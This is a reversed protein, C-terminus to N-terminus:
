EGRIYYFSSTELSRQVEKERLFLTYHLSFNEDRKLTFNSESYFNFFSSFLHSFIIIILPHLRFHRVMLRMSKIQNRMTMPFSREIGEVRVEMALYVFPQARVKKHTCVARRSTLMIHSFPEVLPFMKFLCSFGNFM